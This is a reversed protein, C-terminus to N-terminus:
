GIIERQFLTHSKMQVYINSDGEGLSAKHWTQNFNAEHNQLLHVHKFNKVVIVVSVIQDSFIPFALFNDHM